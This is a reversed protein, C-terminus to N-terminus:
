HAHQHIRHILARDQRIGEDINGLIVRYGCRKRYVGEGDYFGNVEIKSDEHTFSATLTVDLFPNGTSPGKLEIEFIDWQKVSQGVPPYFNLFLLSLIFLYYINKKNM